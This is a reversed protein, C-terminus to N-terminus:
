RRKSLHWFYKVAATWSLGPGKSALTNADVTYDDAPSLPTVDLLKKKRIKGFSNCQHRNDISSAEIHEQAM